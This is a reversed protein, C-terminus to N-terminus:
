KGAKSVGFSLGVPTVQFHTVLKMSEGVSEDSEPVRLATRCSTRWARTAPCDMEAAALVEPMWRDYSSGGFGRRRELGGRLGDNAFRISSSSPSRASAAILVKRCNNLSSRAGAETRKFAAMSIALSTSDCRGVSRSVVRVGREGRGHFAVAEVRIELQVLHGGHRGGRRRRKRGCAEGVHATVRGAGAATREFVFAATLIGDRGSSSSFYIDLVFGAIESM